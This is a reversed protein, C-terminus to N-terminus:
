RGGTFGKEQLMILCVPFMESVTYNLIVCYTDFNYDLIDNLKM